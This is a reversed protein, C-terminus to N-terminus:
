LQILGTDRQLYSTSWLLSRDAVSGVSRRTSPSTDRQVGNYFSGYMTSTHLRMRTMFSLIMWWETSGLCDKLAKQQEETTTSPQQLYVILYGNYKFRGFTTLFTILLWSLEDVLCQYYGKKADLITFVSAETAAMDAVTEAPM